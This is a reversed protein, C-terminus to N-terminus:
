KVILGDKRFKFTIRKVLLDYISFHTFMQYTGEPPLTSISLMFFPSMKLKLEAVLPRM